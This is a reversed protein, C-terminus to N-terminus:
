FGYSLRLSVIGCKVDVKEHGGYDYHDKWDFSYNASNYNIGVAFRPTINIGAGVEWVFGGEEIDTYYGYGGAFNAYLTSNGFLVPTVARIGTKGQVNLAETFEKTSTQASVKLIDWGINETFMHNWRLGLDLAVGADEIDGTFAGAGFDVFISPTHGAKQTTIRSSRSSVIQAQSALTFMALLAIFITKKM